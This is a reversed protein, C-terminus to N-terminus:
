RASAEAAGAARRWASSTTPSPTSASCRRRTRWSTRRPTSTRSSTCRLLAEAFFLVNGHGRRHSSPSTRNVIVSYRRERERPDYADNSLDIKEFGSPAPRARGHAPEVVRPHEDLIGIMGFGIEVPIILFPKVAM